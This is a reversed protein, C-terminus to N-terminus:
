KIIPRLNKFGIEMQGFPDEFKVANDQEILVNKVGGNKLCAETIAVFDLVGTGCALDMANKAKINKQELWKLLTEGFIEPYYNWGFENYVRCFIDSYTAM